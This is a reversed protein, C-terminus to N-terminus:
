LTAAVYDLTATYTDSNVFPIDVQFDTSLADGNEASRTAQTHVTTGVLSTSDAVPVYTFTGVGGDRASLAGIPISDLNGAATALMTDTQSQVTVAYGALNNTEVNYDVVGLGEVTAGPIGTLTFSPTLGSLVISSGVVVNGDVTGDDEAASATGALGGVGLVLVAAGVAGRVVLRGTRQKSRRDSM